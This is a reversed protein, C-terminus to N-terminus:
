LADDRHSPRKKKKVKGNVLKKNKKQLNISATVNISMDELIKQAEETINIRALFKSFEVAMADIMLDKQKIFRDTLLKMLDGSLSKLDLVQVLIQALSKGDVLGTLRKAVDNIIM